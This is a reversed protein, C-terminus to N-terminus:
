MDVSTQALGVADVVMGDGDAEKGGEEGAVIRAMAGPGFGRKLPGRARLASEAARRSAFKVVWFAGVKEAEVTDHFVGKATEVNVTPLAGMIQVSRPRNDVSFGDFRGVGGSRGRGRGRGGRGAVTKSVTSDETNGSIKTATAPNLEANIQVLEKDIAKAKKLLEMKAAADAVGEMDGFVAKQDEMLQKRKTVLGAKREEQEARKELIAQRKKMLDEEAAKQTAAELEREREKKAALENEANNNASDRRGPGPRREGREQRGNGGVNRGGTGSTKPKLVGEETLELGAIEYDQRTAWGLRIHRNGMVADVSNVAALAPERRSYIIFARDPTVLQVNDPTGYMEFFKLLHPLKLKDEPVNRMALVSYQKKGGISGGNGTRVEGGRGDRGRGRGRFVGGGRGGDRGMYQQMAMIAEPPPPMMGPFPPPTGMKLMMDPSMMPPFGFPPARSRGEKGGDKGPSNDGWHQGRREPPTGPGDEM